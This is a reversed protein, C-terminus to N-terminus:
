GLVKQEALDYLFHQLALPVNSGQHPSDMTILLRTDTSAPSVEKTMRALTYRCLVGGASVGLVVNKETSGIASKQANVWNIVNELMRSNNEFSRLTNYNVFILDYEGINDLNHMLDYGNQQSALKVWEGPDDPNLRLLSSINYKGKADFGEVYILPKIVFKNPQERTTNSLAYRIQLVDQGIAFPVTVIPIESSTVDIDKYRNALTNIVNVEVSSNCYMTNGDAMIIKFILPKKGTSDTYTKNVANSSLLLYGNGDNFNVYANTITTNINRFFYSTDLRLSVTNTFTEKISAATFLNNTIYPSSLRNPVDYIQQNSVTLLNDSLATPSLSAYKGYLIVIPSAVNTIASDILANVQPLPLLAYFQPRVRAEPTVPQAPLKSTILDCYATRFIDVGNVANSDTLIGNFWHLPLFESGYEKLYGTPIQSKDVYRFISDLKQRLPDIQTYGKINLFLIAM